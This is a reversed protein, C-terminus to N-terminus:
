SRGFVSKKWGALPQTPWRCPSQCTQIGIKGVNVRAAFDVAPMATAPYLDRTGNGM